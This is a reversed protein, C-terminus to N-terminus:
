AIGVVEDLELRFFLKQAGIGSDIPRLTKMQANFATTVVTGSQDTWELTWAKSPRVGSVDVTLALLAAWQPNTVWMNGQVSNMYLSFVNDIRDDTLQHKTVNSDIDLIMDTIQIYTLSDSLNTLKADQTDVFNAQSGVDAM